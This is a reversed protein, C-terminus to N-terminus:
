ISKEIKSCSGTSLINETKRLMGMYIINEAIATDSKKDLLEFGKAIQSLSYTLNFEVNSKIRDKFEIIDEGDYNYQYIFPNYSNKKIDKEIDDFADLIYLWRGMNYGIWKFIKIYKENTCYPEYVVIEEMLRAFPEAAMDVTNCKKKELESLENLRKEIETCKSEYKRSIKNYASGLLLMGTRSIVSKEDNWDDKM